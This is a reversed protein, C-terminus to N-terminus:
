KYKKDFIIYSIETKWIDFPSSLMFFLTFQKYEKDSWEWKQNKVSERNKEAM